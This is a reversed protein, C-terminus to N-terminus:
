ACPTRQELSADRCGIYLPRLPRVNIIRTLVGDPQIEPQIHVAARASNDTVAAMRGGQPPPDAKVPLSTAEDTVAGRQHFLIQEPRRPATDCAGRVAKCSLGPM